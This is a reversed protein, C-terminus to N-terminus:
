LCTSCDEQVHLLPVRGLRTQTSQIDVPPSVWVFKVKCTILPVVVPNLFWIGFADVCTLHSEVVDVVHTFM